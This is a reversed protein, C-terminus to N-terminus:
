RGNGQVSITFNGLSSRSQKASHRENRGPTSVFDPLHPSTGNPQRTGLSSLYFEENDDEEEMFAPDYGTPVSSRLRWNRIANFTGRRLHTAYSYLLLAFYIKAFWSLVIVTAAVGKEENWLINAAAALQAETMTQNVGAGLRIAEQAASNAVQRGDHPTYVWWAVAFFLTWATSFMHDVFFLHAFYLTQQANEEKIAKLGWGLAVLGLLSYLYLSLQAFSGGAGMLVSILGYVGAAKNFLAFLLAITVGTKLDLVGLFTSIPRLMLKM